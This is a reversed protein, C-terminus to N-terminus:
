EAGGDAGRERGVFRPQRKEARALHAPGDRRMLEFFAAKAARLSLPAAEAMAVAADSAAARMRAQDPPLASVLGLGELAAGALSAGAIVQPKETCGSPTKSSFGAHSIGGLALLSLQQV